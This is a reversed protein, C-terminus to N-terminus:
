FSFKLGARASVGYEEHQAILKESKGLYAIYPENTLNVLDLYLTFRKQFTYSTNFDLQFHEKCYRDAWPEEGLEELFRSQYEGSLRAFFGGREYALSLNALQHSQGIFDVTRKPAGDVTQVDASSGSLTYNAMVSFDKLMSALISLNQQYALELGYINGGSGNAYTTLTTGAVPDLPSSESYIFSDIKKYFVGASAMGLPPAFYSVNLDWNMAKYPDLDPNGISVNGDEDIAKSYATQGWLPRVVSNTWAARLQLDDTFNYRVHVGPLVNTYDKSKTETGTVEGAGEDVVNGTSEFDTAEVRVGTLLNLRGFDVNGLLYGAYVNEESKFSKEASAIPDLEMGFSAYDSRYKSNTDLAVLPFNSFTRRGSGTTNGELTDFSAPNDSANYTKDDFKKTRLSAFFGGKVYAPYATHLDKKLNTTFVTADDRGKEQEDKLGKWSYAGLDFPDTAGAPSVSPTDGDLGSVNYQMNKEAWSFEDVDPKDFNAQAYALTYDLNWDNIQNKGGISVQQNTDKETRDRLLITTTAGDLLDDTQTFKSLQTQQRTESDEAHAYLGRLFYLAKDSPRYELNAVFGQRTREPNYERYSLKSATNPDDWSVEVDDSGMKRKDYSGSLLFGFQKNAGFVNSYTLSGSPAYKESKDSYETGLQGQVTQVGRDFASPTQLAMNGGIGDAPMDPTLTKTITISELVNAPFADYLVARTDDETSQLPIGNISASNLDPNIGRIMVYRGEGMDRQLSVGPMRGMVEAANQDPFRGFADSASINVLNPATMERNLARAQGVAQGQVVVEGMAVTASAFDLDLTTTANETVTVERTVPQYGLYSFTLTHAGAPLNLTYDGQRDSVTKQVKDESTILVGVMNIHNTSDIIQGSVSGNGVAHATTGFMVVSLLLTVFVAASSIRSKM